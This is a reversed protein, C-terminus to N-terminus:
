RFTGPNDPGGMAIYKWLPALQTAQVIENNELMARLDEWSLLHVSLLESPEPTPADKKELGTALFCHVRNGSTAPNPYIVMWERWDGGGYGTEERLERRAAEM